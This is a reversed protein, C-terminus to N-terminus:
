FLPVKQVGGKQLFPPPPSKLYESHSVIMTRSSKDAEATIVSKWDYYFDVQKLLYHNLTNKNDLKKKKGTVRMSGGLEM